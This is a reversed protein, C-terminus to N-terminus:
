FIQFPLIKNKNQYIKKSFKFKINKEYKKGNILVM